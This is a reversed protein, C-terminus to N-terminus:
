SIIKDKLPVTNEVKFVPWRGTYPAIATGIATFHYIMDIRKSNNVEVERPESEIEVDAGVIGEAGVARAESEMREMALSRADYLAYTFDSLEQNQWGGGFFGGTTANQTRWTPIQYYTCNGLAFGVPRYGAQRLMWFEQGSLDSVFPAVGSEGPHPMGEERIATGIAIFELLGQGWDYGKRELRVGVVGTAGLIAAEQQLRGIALHRAHYNAETLVTLEASAGSWSNWNPMWQWGIQYISSGMVQGLPVYGAERVLALENISLDSTFLQDPTGQRRAQEALRERAELPLGGSELSHLSSEQRFRAAADGQKDKGGGSRFIPM